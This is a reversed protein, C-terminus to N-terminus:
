KAQELLVVVEATTRATMIDGDTMRALAEEHAARTSSTCGDSVLTVVFGRDAADRATMEVCGETVIGTVILQRVDLNFLVKDIATSNFAGASAKTIIVEDPLPVVAELFEADRSDYATRIGHAVLSRSGDRANNTLFATRIHIVEVRHARCVDQLRRVNPLISTINAWREDLHNPKGQDRCLRGMWGDPDADMYQLDVVLLATRKLDFALAPKSLVLDYFPDHVM